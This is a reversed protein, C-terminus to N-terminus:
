LACRDRDREAQIRDTIDRVFGNIIYNNGRRPATLSVETDIIKSDRRLSPTEYRRVGAGKATDAMHATLRKLEPRQTERFLREVLSASM